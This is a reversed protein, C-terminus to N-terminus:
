SLCRVIHKANKHKTTACLMECFFSEVSLFRINRGYVPHTAFTGQEPKSSFINDLDALAAYRDAPVSVTDAKHVDGVSNSQNSSFSAFDASCSKHFNDFNAFNANALGSSSGTSLLFLVAFVHCLFLFYLDPIEKEPVKTTM